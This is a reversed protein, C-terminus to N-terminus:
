PGHAKMRSLEHLHQWFTPYSIAVAEAGAIQVDGSGALAAAALAMALRHDNFSRVDGGSM